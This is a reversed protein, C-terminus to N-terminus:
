NADTSKDRDDGTVVAPEDMGVRRALQDLFRVVYRFDGNMLANKAVRALRRVANCENCNRRTHGHTVASLDVNKSSEIDNM